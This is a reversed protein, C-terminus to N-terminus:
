TKLDAEVGGLSVYIDVLQRIIARQKRHDHYEAGFKALRRYHERLEKSHEQRVLFLLVRVSGPKLGPPKAVSRANERVTMLDGGGCLPVV